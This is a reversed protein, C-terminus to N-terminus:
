CKHYLFNFLELLHLLLPSDCVCVKVLDGEMVFHRSPELFDLAGFEHQLQLMKDQAERAHVDRNIKIAVESIIELAQQLQPMLADGQPTFRLVTELLLRKTDHHCSYLMM